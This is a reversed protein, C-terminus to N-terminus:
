KQITNTILNFVRQSTDNDFQLMNGISVEGYSEDIDIHFKRNRLANKLIDSIQPEIEYLLLYIESDTIVLNIDDSWRYKIYYKKFIDTIDISDLHFSLGNWTSREYGFNICDGYQSAWLENTNPKLEKVSKKVESSVVFLNLTINKRLKIDKKPYWDNEQKYLTINFLGDKPTQKTNWYNQTGIWSSKPSPLYYENDFLIMGDKVELIGKYVKFDSSYGSMYTNWMEFCNHYDVVQQKDSWDIEKNPSLRFKVEEGKEIMKNIKIWSIRRKGFFCFKDSVRTVLLGQFIDNEKLM